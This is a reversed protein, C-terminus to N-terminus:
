PCLPKIKRHNFKLEYEEKKYISKAISTHVKITRFIFSTTTTTSNSVEVDGLAGGGVQANSSKLARRIM